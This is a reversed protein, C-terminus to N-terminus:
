VRFGSGQVRFRAEFGLGGMIESDNGYRSEQFELDRWLRPGNFVGRLLRPGNFV